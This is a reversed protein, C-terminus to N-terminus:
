ISKIKYRLIRKILAKRKVGVIVMKNCCIAYKRDPGFSEEQGLWDEEGLVTICVCACM